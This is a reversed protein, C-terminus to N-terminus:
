AASPTRPPRKLGRLHPPTDLRAHSTHTVSRMEGTAYAITAPLTGATVKVIGCCGPPCGCDDHDSHDDQDSPTDDDTDPSAPHKKCCEGPPAARSSDHAQPGISAAHKAAMPCSMVSCECGGRSAHSLAPLAGLCLAALIAVLRHM